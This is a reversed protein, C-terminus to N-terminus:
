KNIKQVNQRMNRPEMGSPSVSQSVKKCEDSTSPSTKNAEFKINKDKEPETKVPMKTSHGASPLTINLSPVEGKTSSNNSNMSAQKPHVSLSVRTKSTQSAATSGDKTVIENKKLSSPTNSMVQFRKPPTEAYTRDSSNQHTISEGRATSDEHMISEGRTTTDEHLHSVNSSDKTLSVFPRCPKKPMSVSIGVQDEKVYISQSNVMSVKKDAKGNDIDKSQSTEMISANVSITSENRKSWAARQQHKRIEIAASSPSSSEVVKPSLPKSASIPQSLNNDEVIKGISEEQKLPKIDMLTHNRKYQDSSQINQLSERSRTNKQQKNNLEDPHLSELTSPISTTLLVSTDIRDMDDLNPFSIKSIDSLVKSPSGDLNLTGSLPSSTASQTMTQEVSRPSKTQISHGYKKCVPSSIINGTLLSSTNRPSTRVSPQINPSSDKLFYEEQRPTTPTIKPSSQITPSLKNIPSSPQQARIFATLPEENQLTNIPSASPSLDYQKIISTNSNGLIPNKTSQQTRTSIIGPEDYWESKSVIRSTPNSNRYNLVPSSSSQHMTLSTSHIKMSSLSSLTSPGEDFPTDEDIMINCNDDDIDHGNLGRRHHHNIRKRRNNNIDALRSSLRAKRIMAIDQTSSPHISTPGGVIESQLERNKFTTSLLPTTTTTSSSTSSSLRTATPSITSTSTPTAFTSFDMKEVIRSFVSSAVDSIGDFVDSTATIMDDMSTHHNSIRSTTFTTTTHNEKEKSQLAHQTLPHHHHQQQQQIPQNISSSTTTTTTNTDPSDSNEKPSHFLLSLVDVAVTDKAKMASVSPSPARSSSSSMRRTTSATTTSTDEIIRQNRSNNHSRSSSSSSLSSSPPSKSRRWPQQQEEEEEDENRTRILSSTSFSHSRRRDSNSRIQNRSSSSTNSVRVTAISSNDDDDLTHVHRDQNTPHTDQQNYDKKSRFSSPSASSGSDDHIKDAAATTATTATSIEVLGKQPSSLYHFQSAITKM